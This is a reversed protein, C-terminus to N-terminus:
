LTIGTKKAEDAATRNFRDQIDDRAGLLRLYNVVEQMGEVVALHLATRGDYDVGNIDVGMAIIRKVEYLDGQSSAFILSMIFNEDFSVHSLRPDIKESKGGVGDFNHFNYISVLRQCFEVGRVSNGLADLRPSWVAIGMVGPIVLMIIGSIGSKAPLGVSFAFEGSFNYMGCSLMLSLCNKVSSASLVRNGTSPCIGSNAFTAAINAMQKTKVEISCCQFYLDLTQHIDTGDPFAGVEKMFYALAFNRDATARESHYVASNFNPRIGGCLNQWLSLISEFRDPLPQQPKILSACVMSGANIMPNHPLNEQNLTIANFNQGSPERGVHTHVKQEGVDELAMCYTVPKCTSQVCFGVDTDGIDFTQGDVTCVSIGFYNPDVRALQPIYRAVDGSNVSKVDTYIKAINDTFSQFDPIIFGGKAARQLLYFYPKILSEFTQFNIPEKNTYSDLLDYLGAVRRDNKGIGCRNLLTCIDSKTIFSGDGVGSLSLFLTKADYDAPVKANM